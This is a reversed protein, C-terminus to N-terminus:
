RSRLRKLAEAKEDKYSMKGSGKAPPAKLDDVPPHAVKKVIVTKKPTKPELAKRLEEAMYAPNVRRLREQLGYDTAIKYVADAGNPLSLAARMMANTEPDWQAIDAIPTVKSDWDQHKARGQADVTLVRQQFHVVEPTINPSVHPSIQSQMDVPPNAEARRLADEIGKKYADNKVAAITKHVEPNHRWNNEPEEIDSDDNGDSNELPKEEPEGTNAPSSEIVEDKDSSEIEPSTKIDDVVGDQKELSSDISM